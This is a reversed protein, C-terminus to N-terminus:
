NLDRKKDIKTLIDFAILTKEELYIFFRRKRNHFLWCFFFQSIVLLYLWNNSRLSTFSEIIFSLVLLISFSISNIISSVFFGRYLSYLSNFLTVHSSMDNALVFLYCYQFAYKASMQPPLDFYKKANDMIYGLEENNGDKKEKILFNAVAQIIHGILYSYLILMVSKEFTFFTVLDPFRKQNVLSFFIFTFLFQYLGVFIYGFHDYLTLKSTLSKM